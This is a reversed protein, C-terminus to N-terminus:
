STGYRHRLEELVATELKNVDGDIEATKQAVDMLDILDGDEADLRRWIEAKDIDIVQELDEETLGHKENALKTLQKMLLAEDDTIKGDAMILMWAVWLMSQPHETRTTLRDAAETIRADNRFVARAHRGALLTSYFNIGVSLPVGIIPIGIKIVNRQLLYKGVVPLARGAEIAAGKYFTRVLPKVIAPVAKLLGESAAQAGQITFAVRLLKWLDDPDDLDLPIRYLVAIDYALHIQLRATYAVDVLVTVAAAPLVVPALISAMAAASYASASLGGEIAAYRAAMKIRQDVIADAPVGPYKAKFWDADVKDTYSDLAHTLLKTFWNGSTIDQPDLSKIFERLEERDREVEEQESDTAQPPKPNM